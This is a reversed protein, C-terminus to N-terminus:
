TISTRTRAARMLASNLNNLQGVLREEQGPAWVRHVTMTVTEGKADLYRLWIAVCVFSGIVIFLNVTSAIESGLVSLFLMGLTNCLFFVSYVISHIIVNRSLPIPYRTLLFVVIILFVVLSCFLGREFLFLYPLVVSRAYPGGSPPIFILTSILLSVGLAGYLSWRGLSYIGKHNELVLSYLELVLLIYFLWLIPETVIWVKAYLVSKLNINLLVVSRCVWFILYAFFVRYKRYLGASYMRYGLAIVGLLILFRLIRVTDGSTM